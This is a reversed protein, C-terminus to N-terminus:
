ADDDISIFIDRYSVYFSAYTGPLVVLLILMMLAGAFEEGASAFVTSLLVAVLVLLLAGFFYVSVIYVLFARWNRLCAVVSFFLAKGASLDHWAALVPAFWYAVMLPAFFVVLRIMFVAQNDVMAERSPREGLVLLRYLMGDDFVSIIGIMCLCFVIYIIGLQLLPRVNNKFGSFLLLPPLPEGQAVLRCANMLSVSFAPILLPGAIQGLWPVSSILVMVIWYGSVVLSLAWPKKRYVGFGEFLWGSGRRAPLTLAQM